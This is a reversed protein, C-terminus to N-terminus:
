ADESRALPGDVLFAALVGAAISVGLFVPSGILLGRVGEFGSVLGIFIGGFYVVVPMGMGWRIPNRNFLLSGLVAVSAGMVASGASLQLGRALWGGSTLGSTYWTGAAGGFVLVASM